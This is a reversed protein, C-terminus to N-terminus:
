DNEVPEYEQVEACIDKKEVDIVQFNCDDLYEMFNKYGLEKIKNEDFEVKITVIAEM